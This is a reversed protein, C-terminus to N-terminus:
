PCTVSTILGDKITVATVASACTQTLGVTGDSSNHKGELILTGFDFKLVGSASSVGVVDPASGVAFSFDEGYGINYFTMLRGSMEVIGTDAATGGTVWLVGGGKGADINTGGTLGVGGGTGSGFGFGGGFTVQGGSANPGTGSGGNADIGDAATTYTSRLKLYSFSGGFDGGRLELVGSLGDTGSGAGALVFLNAGLVNGGSATADVPRITQADMSVAPVGLLIDRGSLGILRGDSLTLASITPSTGFVAAGTGTEDSLATRLSASDTLTTGGGSAPPSLVMQSSVPLALWSGLLVGAAFGGFSTLKGTM